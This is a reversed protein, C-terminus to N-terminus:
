NQYYASQEAQKYAYVLKMYSKNNSDVLLIQSKYQYKWEM